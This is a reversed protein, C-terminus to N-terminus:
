SFFQRDIGIITGEAGHNAVAVVFRWPGTKVYGETGNQFSGSCLLEPRQIGRPRCRYGTVFQAHKEVRDISRSADSTCGALYLARITV